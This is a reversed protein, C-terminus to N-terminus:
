VSWSNFVFDAKDPVIFVLIHTVLYFWHNVRHGSWVVVAAGGATPLNAGMAHERSDDQRRMQRKKLWHSEM